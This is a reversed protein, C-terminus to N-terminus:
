FYEYKSSKELFQGSSDSRKSSFEDAFIVLSSHTKWFDTWRMFPFNLKSCFNSSNELFRDTHCASFNFKRFCNTSNELIRWYSKFKGNRDIESKNDFGPFNMRFKKHFKLKKGSDDTIRSRAEKDAM